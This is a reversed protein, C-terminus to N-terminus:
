YSQTVQNFDSPESTDDRRGGFSWFELPVNPAVGLMVQLDLTAEGGPNGPDNCMTQQYTKEGTTENVQVLSFEGGCVLEYSRSMEPVQYMQLYGTLDVTNYYEELFEAVAQRNGNEGGGGVTGPPIGYRAQMFQPTVDPQPSIYPGCYDSRLGEPCAAADSKQGNTYSVEISFTSNAGLPAHMLSFWCGSFTMDSSAFAKNHDLLDCTTQMNRGRYVTPNTWKDCPQCYTMLNGQSVVYKPGAEGTKYDLPEVAVTVHKVDNGDGCVGTTSAPSGDLCRLMAFASVVGGRWSTPLVALPSSGAPIDAGDADLRRPAASEKEYTRTRMTFPMGSVGAVFDVHQAVSEPLSYHHDATRVMKLGRGTHQYRRFDAALMRGATKADADVTIYDGNGTRGFRLVEHETLFGEVAEYAEASPQVLEDVDSKQLFRGYSAHEPDSVRRFADKLEQLGQPNQRLAFTLRLVDTESAEGVDEWEGTEVPHRFSDPPMSVRTEAGSLVVCLAFCLSVFAAMEEKRRKRVRRVASESYGLAVSSVSGERATSQESPSDRGESGRSVVHSRPVSAAPCRWCRFITPLLTRLVAM